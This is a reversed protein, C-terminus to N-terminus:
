YRVAAIAAFPVSQLATVEAPTRSTGPPHAAVDVHDRGVRDITGHLPAPDLGAGLEAPADTTLIEVSSRRRCLDRLVFAFGIRDGLASRSARDADLSLALQEPSWRVTRIGDIAIVIARSRGSEAIEDGSIWDRGISTPRLDLSRSALRIRLVGASPDAGPRGLVAALRDRLSLRSLRLREEEAALDADEAALERALQGELDDFLSEWRM